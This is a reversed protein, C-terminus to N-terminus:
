RSRVFCGTGIDRMYQCFFSFKVFHLENLLICFISVRWHCSMYSYLSVSPIAHEFVQSKRIRIEEVTKTYKSLSNNRHSKKDYYKETQSQISQQFNKWFKKKTKNNNKKPQTQQTNRKINSVYTHFFIHIIEIEWFWFIDFTYIELWSKSYWFISLPSLLDFNGDKLFFFLLCTDLSIINVSKM